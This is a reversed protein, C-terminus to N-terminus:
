ARPSKNYRSSNDFKLRIGFRPAPSQHNSQPDGETGTLTLEVIALGFNSQGHLLLAAVPPGESEVARAKDGHGSSGGM